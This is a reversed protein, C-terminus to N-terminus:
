LTVLFVCRLTVKCGEAAVGLADFAFLVARKWGVRAAAFVVLATSLANTALLLLVLAFPRLRGGASSTPAALLAELRDKATGIFLKMHGVLLFWGLWLSVEFLSPVLVAGVFVAKFVV